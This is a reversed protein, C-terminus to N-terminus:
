GAMNSDMHQQGFAQLVAAVFTQKHHLKEMVQHTKSNATQWATPDPAGSSSGRVHIRMLVLLEADWDSMDLIEVSSPTRLGLAQTVATELYGAGSKKFASSAAIPLLAQLQISKESHKVFQTTIRRGLISTVGASNKCSYTIQHEGAKTLDGFHAKVSSSIDGDKEDSCSAGPDAYYLPTDPDVALVQPNSGHLKIV